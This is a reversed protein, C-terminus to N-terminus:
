RGATEIFTAIATIANATGATVRLEDGPEFAMGHLDFEIEALGALSKASYLTYTVTESADYFAWAITAASGTTNALRLMVGKSLAVTDPTTYLATAATTTLKVKPSVTVDMSTVLVSM